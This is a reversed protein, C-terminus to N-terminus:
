EFTYMNELEMANRGFPNGTDKVPFHFGGNVNWLNKPSDLIIEPQGEYEKITGKILVTRNKLEKIDGLFQDACDRFICINFHGEKPRRNGMNLFYTDGSKGVSEVIGCVSCTEGIHKYAEFPTISKKVKRVMSNDALPLLDEVTYEKIDPIPTPEPAEDGYQAVYAVYGECIGTCEPEWGIFYQSKGDINKTRPMDPIYLREGVKYADSTIEKDDYDKFYVMYYDPDGCGAILCALISIILVSLWKNM